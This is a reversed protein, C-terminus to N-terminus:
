KFMKLFLKSEMERNVLIQKKTVPYSNILIKKKRILNEVDKYTKGLGKKCALVILRRNLFNSIRIKKRWFKHPNELLGLDYFTKGLFSECYKKFIENDLSFLIKKLVSIESLIREYSYFFNGKDLELNASGRKKKFFKLKM